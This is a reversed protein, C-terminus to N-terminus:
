FHKLSIFKFCEIYSQSGVVGRNYAIDYGSGFDPSVRLIPLNLSINISSDFYLAKLPALGVDHYMAVFTNYRARNAPIFAVDPALPGVFLEFGIKKNISDIAQKILIDENGIVGNDGAHPNLGLVAVKKQERISDAISHTFHESIELNSEINESELLRSVMKPNLAAKKVSNDSKEKSELHSKISDLNPNESREGQEKITKKTYFRYLFCEYFTLLFECLNDFKIKSPVDKLAIHDTFLAVYMNENGLMMIAKKEFYHSLFETHGAYKVGALNWAYKNIPLTLLSANNKVSLDLAIKFSTFSYLGSQKTPTCPNIEIDSSNIEHLHLNPIKINLLNAANAIIDYSVCYIPNCWKAIQDHNKLILELSTGNIDGCSVYVDHKQSVKIMSDKFPNKVIKHINSKTNQQINGLNITSEAIKKNSEINKSLNSINQINRLHQLHKADKSNM